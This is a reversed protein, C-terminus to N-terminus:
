SNITERMPKPNRRFPLWLRSIVLAGGLVAFPLVTLIARFGLTEGAESSRSLVLRNFWLNAQYLTMVCLSIAAARPARRAVVVLNATFVLFWVASMLAVYLPPLGTPLDPLDRAQSVSLAGRALNELCFWLLVLMALKPWGRSRPPQAPALM